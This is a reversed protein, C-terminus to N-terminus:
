NDDRACRPVQKKCNKGNCHFVFEYVVPVGVGASFNGRFTV